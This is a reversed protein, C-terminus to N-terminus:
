KGLSQTLQGCIPLDATLGYKVALIEVTQILACGGRIIKFKGPVSLDIVTSGLRSEPRHIDGTPGGDIVLSLHPWLEQFETVTLSSAGQSINASTLALPGACERALERIFWHSPIRVGVLPTFPNLDKNLTDSRELVLTVPGPLLEQLLKDPVCVNCYRYVHEVDALCIALPKNAARGKLRYVAGLARSDQALCAVGYVTDTPLAVLGGERLASAAALLASQRDPGSAPLPMPLPVRAMAPLGPASPAGEESAAAGGGRWPRVPLSSSSSCCWCRRLRLGLLLPARYM